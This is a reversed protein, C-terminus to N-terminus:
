KWIKESSFLNDQFSSTHEIKRVKPVIFILIFSGSSIISIFLKRLSAIQSQYRGGKRSMFNSLKDAIFNSKIIIESYAIFNRPPYLLPLSVLFCASIYIRISTPCPCISDSIFDIGSLPWKESKCGVTKEEPWLDGKLYGIFFIFKLLLLFQFFGSLSYINISWAM